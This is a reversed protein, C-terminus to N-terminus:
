DVKVKQSLRPASVIYIGAPLRFAQTGRVTATAVTMGNMNIIRVTESRESTVNVVGDGGSVRITQRAIDTAPQDIGAAEEPTMAEIRAFLGWVPHCRYSEVSQEPVALTCDDYPIKSGLAPVPEEPDYYFAGLADLTLEPPEVTKVVMRTLQSMGMAFAFRGIHRLSSPLTLKSIGNIGSLGSHSISVVGEPLEFQGNDLFWLDYFARPPVAKLGPLMTVKGAQVSAFANKDIETLSGPIVLHGVMLDIFTNEQIGIVQFEKGEANKVTEPLRLEEVPSELTCKVICVADEIHNVQKYHLGNVEFEHKEPEGWNFSLWSHASATGCVAMALLFFAYQLRM